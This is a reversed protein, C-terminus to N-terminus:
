VESVPIEFEALKRNNDKNPDKTESNPFLFASAYSKKDKNCKIIKYLMPPVMIGNEKLVLIKNEYM